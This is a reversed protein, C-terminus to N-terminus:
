KEPFIFIPAEIDVHVSLRKHSEVAFKLGAKTMERLGESVREGAVAKFAEVAPDKCKSEFFQTISLLLTPVYVVEIPRMTLALYHDASRNPPRDEYVLDFFPRQATVAPSSISGSSAITEVSVSNKQSKARIIVPYLTGQTIHDRLVLNNLSVHTRHSTPRQVFKAKISHFELQVTKPTKSKRSQIINILGSKLEFSM